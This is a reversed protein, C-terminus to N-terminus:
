RFLPAHGRYRVKAKLAELGEGRPPVPGEYSLPRAGDASFVLRITGVGWRVWWSSAELACAVEGGRPAGCSLTFVYSSGREPSAFRFTLTEGSRLAEWRTLAYGFLTPGVVVELGDGPEIVREREDGIERTFELAGGELVRVASVEGTQAHREEFSLLRYEEGHLAEQLVLPAGDVRRTTHISRWHEGRAEVRREYVFAPAELGEPTVEGLYILAGEPPASLAALLAPSPSVPARGCACLALASILPLFHRMPAELNVIWPAFRVRPPGTYLRSALITKVPASLMNDARSMM